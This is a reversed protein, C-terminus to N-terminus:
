VSTEFIESICFYVNGFPYPLNLYLVYLAVDEGEWAVGWRGVVCLDGNKFRLKTDINDYLGLRCKPYVGFDYELANIQCVKSLQYQFEKFIMM